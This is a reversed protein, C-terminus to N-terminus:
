RSAGGDTTNRYFLQFKSNDLPITGRCLSAEEGVTRKLEDIAATIASCAQKTSSPSLLNILDHLFKWASGTGAPPSASSLKYVLILVRVLKGPSRALRENASYSEGGCCVIRRHAMKDPM